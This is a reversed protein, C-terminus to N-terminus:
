AVGPPKVAESLPLCVNNSIASGYANCNDRTPNQVHYLVAGPKDVTQDKNM